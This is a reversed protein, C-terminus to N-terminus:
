FKLNEEMWALRNNIWDILKSVELDYQESVTEYDPNQAGLSNWVMENGAASYKIAQARKNIIQEISAKSKIVQDLRSKALKKFDSNQLLYSFWSTGELYLRM